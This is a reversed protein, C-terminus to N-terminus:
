NLTFGKILTYQKKFTKPTKQPTNKSSVLGYVRFWWGKFSGRADESLWRADRSAIM